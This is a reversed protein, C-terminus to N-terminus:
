KVLMMKKTETYGGATITYYYVGSNLSSANFEVQYTGASKRENIIQAIERGLVDYIKLIVFEDNPISFSILTAPNFPNPYNQALNYDKSIIVEVEVFDTLTFSGDYNIQKLRYQYRGSTTPEDKFSYRHLETSTGYGAIFGVVEWNESSSSTRQIEFGQNNMETATVWDLNITNGVVDATFSVLEVPIISYTFEYIGAGSGIPSACGAFLTHTGTSNYALARIAYTALLTGGNAAVWSTGGDTTRWVGINLGTSRDLGVVFDTTSGPRIAASRILTGVDQPAGDFKRTWNAGADTSIYVGGSVTNMFLGALIINPDADSVKIVRIPNIEAPDTPMGNTAATWLDGGNTSKYIMSPGLQTAVLFSSGAYITNPDSTSMALSLFNKVTGIGNIAPAWSTGGDTTKYIGNVADAVGDFIAVWAINPNDPHVMVAQVAISSESIGTNIKAWNGGGDTTKYVGSNANGGATGVYLVNPNNKSIAVAQVQTFTLGTNATNWTTGGDTTKYVGFDLGISYMNDQNSPDIVMGYVRGVSTTTTTWIDVGDQSIIHATFLFTLSFFYFLKKM